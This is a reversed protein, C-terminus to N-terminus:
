LQHCDQTKYLIIEWPGQSAASNPALALNRNLTNVPPNLLLKIANTKLYLCATHRIVTNLICGSFM